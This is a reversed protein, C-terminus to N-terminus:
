VKRVYGTLAIILGFCALASEFGPTKTTVPPAAVPAQTTTMVTTPVTTPTAVTTLITTPPATTKTTTPASTAATTPTATKTGSVILPNREQDLLGWSPTYTKGSEPYNDKMSNVNCEAWIRYTGPPYSDPRGTDWIAGTSYPSGTVPVENIPTSVGAKNLLASYEAGDPSQVYIRIPVASVGPRQAIQYLNTNIRFEVEDGTTIWGNATADVNVTADYVRIDLNPDAVTFATGNAKGTSDLHYWVGLKGSFETPSVMYSTPNSVSIAGSDPSTTPIAAASAWWGIQTDGNMAATIDLGEEGLFIANGSAITSIPAAAMAGIPLALLALALVMCTKGLSNIM